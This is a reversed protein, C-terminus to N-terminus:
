PGGVPEPWYYDSSKLSASIITSMKAKFFNNKQWEFNVFLFELFNQQKFISTEFYKCINVQCLNPELLKLGNQYQFQAQLWDALSILLSNAFKM